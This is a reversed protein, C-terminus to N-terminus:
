GQFAFNEGFTKRFFVETPTAFGITKKPRRNLLEKGM